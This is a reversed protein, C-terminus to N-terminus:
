SGFRHRVVVPQDALVRVTLTRPAFDSNRITIVHDGVTLTLRALPPTVGAGKGDVEIQGWPAIALQVVGTAPPAAKAPRAPMERESAPAKDIVRPRVPKAALVLPPPEAVAPAATASAAAIPAPAPAAAAVPPEISPTPAPSQSSTASPSAEHNSSDANGLLQWGAVVGIATSAALAAAVLRRKRQRAQAGDEAGIEAEADLWQKLAQSMQRASRWRQAPDHALARMAIDALAKPVEPRLEHPPLPQGREVAQVIEQLSQGDFAKRHALLEYMVVGLAYVDCRRDITEGRLQEPALYHPSGAVVGELAPIDQGHAVRAIGFDVVKPLTRGVMFINAPKIDCHIVGKSHAYSLADCVRRMIQATQVIDPRWGNALLQRLDRGRLREMAIYVGQESLGADYVTVINPHNLGAAARAENLFLADLTARDGEAVSLHLTKVAITRSLIPDYAAYVTGLGGEGLQQKLAYRGIHGITLGQGGGTADGGEAASSESTTPDLDIPAASADASAPAAATKDRHPHDQM